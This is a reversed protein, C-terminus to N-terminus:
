GPPPEEREARADRVIRAIREAILDETLEVDFREEIAALLELRGLSDLGALLAAADRFAGPDAGPIAATILEAVEAALPDTRAPEVPPPPVTM